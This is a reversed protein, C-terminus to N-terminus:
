TAPVTAKYRSAYGSAVGWSTASIIAPCAVAPRIPSWLKLSPLPVGFRSRCVVSGAGGGFWGSDKIDPWFEDLHGSLGDAQIRLQNKLWGEGTIEGLNLTKMAM